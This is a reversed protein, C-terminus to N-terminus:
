AGKKKMNNIFNTYFYYKEIPFMLVTIIVLYSTVTGWIEALVKEAKQYRRHIAQGEPSVRIYLNFYVDANIKKANTEFSYDYAVYSEQELDHGFIGVDSSLDIHKTFIYGEKYSDPDTM